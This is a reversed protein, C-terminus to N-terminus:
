DLRINLKTVLAGIKDTEKAIFDAFADPSMGGPEAGLVHLADRVEPKSLARAVDRQLIGIVADPTGGPVVLGYWDSLEFGPLGSEAFTPVEPVASSRTAGTTAIPRLEGSRIFPLHATPGSLGLQVTGSVLDVLAPGGGRYSVTVINAGTQLKMMEMALAAASLSGPNSYALTGPAARAMGIVDQLTRAPLSPHASLLGPVTAILTVPRLARPDYPVTRMAFPLAIQSVSIVGLTYGDPAAKAAYETGVLGSAGSRNEIVVNQGLSSAMEKGIIRALADATGGPSFTVVIRIPRNPYDPAQAAASAVIGLSLLAAALSALMRGM